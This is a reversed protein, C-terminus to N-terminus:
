TPPHAAMNPLALQWILTPLVGPLEFASMDDIHFIRVGPVTNFPITDGDDGDDTSDDSVLAPLDIEKKFERRTKYLGKKLNSERLAKGADIM